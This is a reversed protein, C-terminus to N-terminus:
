KVLRMYRFRVICAAAIGIAAVFGDFIFIHAIDGKKAILGTAIPLAVAAISSATAVLGTVTGKKRWFLETMITIALQLIGATTFGLFFSGIVMFSANKWTLVLMVTLATLIPYIILVTVPRILRNLIFALILVSLLSGMSYYSLLKVSDNVALGIVQEGYSPLWIQAVTFLATSTFGIVILAIGEKWFDPNLKQNQEEFKRDTEFAESVEGHNPFHSWILIFLNMMYIIALLYFAYGYFLGKESLFLIIFPLIIAGIAMFAKVMVNASGAKKKFIEVLAPYSGADMAANGFGALIAFILAMYYNTTLPIGIAFVAMAISAFLLLPKRGIKDSLIGFSSYSLLKGFGIAAIIYSVGTRDTNWQETLYTMHSSLIINVMGLLFYNSYLGISAQIYSKRM